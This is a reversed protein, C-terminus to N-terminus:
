SMPFPNHPAIFTSKTQYETTKTTEMTEEKETFSKDSHSWKHDWPERRQKGKDRDSESGRGLKEEVKERVDSASEKIDELKEKAYTSINEARDRIKAKIVEPQKIAQNAKEFATHFSVNAKDTISEIPRSTFWQNMQDNLPQLSHVISDVISQAISQKIRKIFLSTVMKDLTNHKADKIDINM